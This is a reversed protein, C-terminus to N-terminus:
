VPRVATLAPVRLSPLASARPSVNRPTDIPATATVSVVVPM